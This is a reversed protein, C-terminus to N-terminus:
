RKASQYRIGARFEWEHFRSPAGDYVFFGSKTEEVALGADYTLSAVAM